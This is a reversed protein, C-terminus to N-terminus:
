SEYRGTMSTVNIRYIIASELQSTMDVALSSIKPAVENLSLILMRMAQTAEDGSLEEYNGWALASKWHFFDKIKEVQVCVHPNSRMIEIKRGPESHSYIANEFFVYSIPVLYIEDHHHCALHALKCEKFLNKAEESSLTHIAEHQPKM